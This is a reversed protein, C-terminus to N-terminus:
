EDSGGEVEVVWLTIGHKVAVTQARYIYRAEKNRDKVLLVLGPDKGTVAGYYLAQGLGEAWKPAWDVEIAHSKTLIDVRTRDWLRFEVQAQPFRDQVLREVESAEDLLLIVSFILSIM